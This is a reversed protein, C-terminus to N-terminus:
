SEITHDHALTFTVNWLASTPGFSGVKASEGSLGIKLTAYTPDEENERKGSCGLEIEGEGNTGWSTVRGLTWRATDSPAPEMDIYYFSGVKFSVKSDKDFHLTCEGSPSYKWFQENEAFNMPEKGYEYKKKTVPKLSVITNSDWNYTISLCRFKARIM